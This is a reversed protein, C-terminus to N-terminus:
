TCKIQGAVTESLIEKWKEKIELKTRSFGYQFHTAGGLFTVNHIISHAGLKHLMHICSKIVQCGLSFGILSVTQEPFIDGRALSIALLKGALKANKLHINFKELIPKLFANYGGFGLSIVGVVTGTPGPILTAATLLPQLSKNFNWAEVVKGPKVEKAVEIKTSSKWKVEFCGM